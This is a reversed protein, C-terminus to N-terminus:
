FNLFGLEQGKIGTYALSHYSYSDQLLDPYTKVNKEMNRTRGWHIVITNKFDGQASYAHVMADYSLFLVENADFNYVGIANDEAQSTEDETESEIGIVLGDSSLKYSFWGSMYYGNGWIEKKKLNYWLGRVDIRTKMDENSLRDGAASFIGLPYTSRGAFAAYYKKQEPHLAVSAGNKGKHEGDIKPMQLMLAQKLNEVSQSKASFYGFSFLFTFLVFRKM